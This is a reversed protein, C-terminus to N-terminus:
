HHLAGIPEEGPHSHPLKDWHMPKDGNPQTVPVNNTQQGPASCFRAINGMVGCTYCKFSSYDVPRRQNLQHQGNNQRRGGNSANGGNTQRQTLKAVQEQLECIQKMQDMEVKVPGLQLQQTPQKMSSSSANGLKQNKNQWNQWKPRDGVRAAWGDEESSSDDKDSDNAETERM